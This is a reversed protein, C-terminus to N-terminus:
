FPEHSRGSQLDVGCFDSSRETAEKGWRKKKLDEM